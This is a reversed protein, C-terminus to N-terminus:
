NGTWFDAQHCPLNTLNQSYKSYQEVIYNDKTPFQLFTNTRDPVYRINITSYGSTRYNVPEIYGVLDCELQNNWDKWVISSKSSVVEWGVIGLKFSETIRCCSKSDTNMRSLDHWRGTCMWVSSIQQQHSPDRCASVYEVISRVQTPTPERRCTKQVIYSITDWSVKINTM